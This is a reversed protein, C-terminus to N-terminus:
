MWLRWGINIALNSLTPFIIGKKCWYLMLGKIDFCGAGVSMYFGNIKCMKFPTVRLQVDWKNPEFTLKDSGVDILNGWLVLVDISGGYYTKNIRSNSGTGNYSWELGVGLSLFDCYLDDSKYYAGDLLGVKPVIGVYRNFFRKYEFSFRLFYLLYAPKNSLISKFVVGAVGSISVWDWTLCIQGHGKNKNTIEEDVTDSIAKRNWNTVKRNWNTTDSIVEKNWNITNLSILYVLLLLLVGKISRLM